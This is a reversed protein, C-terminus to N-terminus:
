EGGKKSPLPENFRLSMAVSDFLKRYRSADKAQTGATIIYAIKNKPFIYSVLSVKIGQPEMTYSYWAGQLGNATVDGKEFHAATPIARKVSNITETRYEELSLSRMDETVVNVNTNPDEETKPAMLYYYNVGYLTRNETTWGSPIYISYSLKGANMNTPQGM